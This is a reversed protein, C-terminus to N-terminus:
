NPRRASLRLLIPTPMGAPPPESLQLGNLVENEIAADLSPDGSSSALQARTIRGSVDPWIRVKVSLNADRTRRNNRLADAIRSQVQGAYAGFRSGRDSNGGLRGNGGKNGLGFSDNSGDGKINTGIPPEDPPPAEVPKDEPVFTQEQEVIKPQEIPPPTPAPPPPLSVVVMPAARHVSGEGSTLKSALFGVGLILFAGAGLMLGYRQLFSRAKPEEEEGRM